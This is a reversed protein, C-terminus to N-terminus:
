HQNAALPASAEHFGGGLARILSIQLDQKRAKLDAAARRQALLHTEVTLATLYPSLGGKYRLMALRYAEEAAALATKTAEEEGSLAAIRTLQEAVDQAATVVSQNYQAIAGDVDAIEADAARPLM